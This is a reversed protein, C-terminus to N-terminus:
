CARRRRRTNWPSPITRVLWAPRWFDDSGIIYVMSMAIVGEPSAGSPLLQHLVPTGDEVRCVGVISARESLVFLYTDGFRAFEM